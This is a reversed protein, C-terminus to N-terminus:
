AESTTATSSPSPGAEAHPAHYIRRLGSATGRIWTEGSLRAVVHYLGPLRTLRRELAARDRVGELLGSLVADPVRDPGILVLADDGRRLHSVKRFLPRALVWPRGSPHVVTADPAPLHGAVAHGAVSDPLVVFYDRPLGPM